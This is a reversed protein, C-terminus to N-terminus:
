LGLVKQLILISQVYKPVREIARIQRILDNRREQEIIDEKEKKAIRDAIDLKIAERKRQNEEKIKKMAIQPKSDRVKAIEKAMRRNRQVIQAAEKENKKLAIHLEAKMTKTIIKKKALNRSKSEAARKHSAEM